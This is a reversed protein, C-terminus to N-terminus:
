RLLLGLPAEAAADADGSCDGILIGAIMGCNAEATLLFIFNKEDGKGIERTGTRLGVVHTSKLLWVFPL